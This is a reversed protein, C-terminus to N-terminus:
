QSGNVSFGSLDPSFSSDKPTFTPIIRISNPLASIQTGTLCEFEDVEARMAASSRVAASQRPRLHVRARGAEIRRPNWAAAM